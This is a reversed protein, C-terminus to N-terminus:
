KTTVGTTGQFKRLQRVYDGAGVGERVLQAKLAAYETRLRLSENLRAVFKPGSEQELAQATYVYLNVARGPDASQHLYIGSSGISAQPQHPYGAARLREQVGAIDAGPPLVLQLDIIDQGWMGPIATSGVHDIQLDVRSGTCRSQLAFEIRAAIQQAQVSWTRPAGPGPLLRIGQRPAPRGQNINQAFTRIRGEFLHTLSARTTEISGSTDVIYDAIRARDTDSAQARIRALADAPSMGRRDVLRKLRVPEPAQAVVVLHYRNELQNEAILPVDHVVVDGPNLEAVLEATRRAVAPHVIQNLDQLARSDNFVIRGLGGRDLNGSANIIQSGFRAVIQELASAGPQVVERAIEDADIIKCGLRAFMAAVTSKGAAIAGTLGIQFVM